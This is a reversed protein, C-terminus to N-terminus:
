SSLAPWVIKCSRPLAALTTSSLLLCAISVAWRSERWSRADSFLTPSSSGLDRGISFLSVARLLPQM